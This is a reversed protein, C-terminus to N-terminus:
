RQGMQRCQAAAQFRDVESAWIGCRYVRLKEMHGAKKAMDVVTQMNDLVYHNDQVSESRNMHTRAKDKDNITANREKLSQHRFTHLAVGPPLELSIRNQGLWFWMRGPWAESVVLASKSAVAPNIM